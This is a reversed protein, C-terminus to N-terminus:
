RTWTPPNTWTSRRTRLGCLGAAQHRAGRRSLREADRAPDPFGIAQAAAASWYNLWGLCHPIEPPRIYDPFRLAPLGRPPVGPKRVPDITQRSIEVAANAPTARGWFARAGEGIQRKAGHGLRGLSAGLMVCAQRFSM